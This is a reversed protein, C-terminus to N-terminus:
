TGDRHRIIIQGTYRMDVIVSERVDILNLKELLHKKIRLDNTGLMYQAGKYEVIGEEASVVEGEPIVEELLIYHEHKQMLAFVFVAVVIVLLLIM